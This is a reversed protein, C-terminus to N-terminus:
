INKLGKLFCRSSLYLKLLFCGVAIWQRNCADRAARQVRRFSIRTTVGVDAYALPSDNLLSMLHSLVSLAHARITPLTSSRQCRGVAAKFLGLVRQEASSLQSDAVSAGATRVVGSNSGVVGATDGRRAAATRTSTM